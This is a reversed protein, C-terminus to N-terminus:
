RRDPHAITRFARLFKSRPLIKSSYKRMDIAVMPAIAMPSYGSATATMSKKLVPSIRSSLATSFALPDIVERTSIIGSLAFRSSASPCMLLTLELDRFCPSMIRTFGPSLIGTSPTMDSPKDLRSVEDIVPSDSGRSTAGPSGTKAPNRFLWPARRMSTELGKSDEAADLIRAAMPSALDFFVRVSRSAM